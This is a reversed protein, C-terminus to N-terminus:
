IAKKINKSIRFNVMTFTPYKTSILRQLWVNNLDIWNNRRINAAFGIAPPETAMFVVKFSFLNQVKALLPLFEHELIRRYSLMENDVKNADKHGAPHIVFGNFILVSPVRGFFPGNEFSMTSRGNSYNILQKFKSVTTEDMEVKWYYSMSFDPFGAIREIGDKIVNQNGEHLM